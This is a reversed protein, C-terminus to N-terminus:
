NFTERIFQECSRYIMQYCDDFGSDGGYYPDPVDLDESEIDFERLVHLKAKSNKPELDYLNALNNRDMAFIYDFEFFDDKTVKRSKQHSIDIHHDYAVRISRRDPAEGVHYASTGASDVKVDLQHQNALYKMIGEGLPSRCINGLCVFLIKTM